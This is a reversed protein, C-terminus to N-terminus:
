EDIFHAANDGKKRFWERDAWTLNFHVLRLPKVADTTWNFASIADVAEDASREVYDEM